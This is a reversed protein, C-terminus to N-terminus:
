SRRRGGISSSTPRGAAATRKTERLFSVLATKFARDSIMLTTMCHRMLRDGATEADPGVFALGVNSIKVEGAPTVYPRAGFDEYYAVVDSPTVEGGRAKAIGLQRALGDAERSIDLDKLSQPPVARRNWLMALRLHPADFPIVRGPLASADATCAPRCRPAAFPLIVASM